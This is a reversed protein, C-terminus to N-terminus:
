IADSVGNQQQQTAGVMKRLEYEKTFERSLIGLDRVLENCATIVAQKPSIDGDTQV